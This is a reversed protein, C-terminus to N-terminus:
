RPLQNGGIWCLVMNSHSRPLRLFSLPLTLTKCPRRTYVMTYGLHPPHHKRRTIRISAKFRKENIDDDTLGFDMLPCTVKLHHLVTDILPGYTYPLTGHLIKKAGDTFGDWGIFSLDGQIFPSTKSAQLQQKNMNCLAPHMISPDSTLRYGSEDPILLTTLPKRTGQFSTTLQQFMQRKQEKKRLARIKQAKKKEDGNAYADALDQLYRDRMPIANRKVTEYEKLALRHAKTLEDHTM